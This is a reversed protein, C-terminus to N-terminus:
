PFPILLIIGFISTLTVALRANNQEYHHYHHQQETETTKFRHMFNLGL